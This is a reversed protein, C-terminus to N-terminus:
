LLSHIRNFLEEAKTLGEMRVIVEGDKIIMLCPLKGVKFKSGVHPWRDMDITIVPIDLSQRLAKLEKRQLKCPGCNIASFSVLVAEERFAELMAEVNKFRVSAALSTSPRLLLVKGFIGISYRSLDQWGGRYQLDTPRSTQRVHPAVLAKTDAPLRILGLALFIASLLCRSRSRIM